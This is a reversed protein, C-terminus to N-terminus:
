GRPAAPPQATPGGRIPRGTINPLFIPTACVREKPEWWLGNAECKQAPAIVLVHYALAAAVCVVFLGLFIITTRHVAHNM